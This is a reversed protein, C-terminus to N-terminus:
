NPNGKVCSEPTWNAPEPLRPMWHTIEYGLVDMHDPHTGLKWHVGNWFMTWDKWETWYPEPRPLDDSPQRMWLRIRAWAIIRQPDYGPKYASIPKWRTVISGPPVGIEVMNKERTIIVGGLATSCEPCGSPEGVKWTRHCTDCIYGDNTPNLRPQVPYKM